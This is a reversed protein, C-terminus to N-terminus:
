ILGIAKIIFLLIFAVIGGFIVALPVTLANAIALLKRIDEDSRFKSSYSKEEKSKNRSNASEENIVSYFLNLSGQQPTDLIGQPIPSFDCLGLKFKVSLSRLFRQLGTRKDPIRNNKINM